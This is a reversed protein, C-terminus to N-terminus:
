LLHVDRLKAESPWRDEHDAAVSGLSEPRARQERRERVRLDAAQQLTYRESGDGLCPKASEADRFKEGLLGALRKLLRELEDAAGVSVLVHGDRGLDHRVEGGLDGRQSFLNGVGLPIGIYEGLFVPQAVLCRHVVVYGRRLLGCRSPGFVTTRESVRLGGRCGLSTAVEGLLWVARRGDGEFSEVRRGLCSGVEFAGLRVRHVRRRVAYRRVVRQSESDLLAVEAIIGGLAVVLELDDGVARNHSCLQLLGGRRELPGRVRGRELSLLDEAELALALVLAEGLLAERAVATLAHLVVGLEGAEGRQLQDEDGRAEGRM